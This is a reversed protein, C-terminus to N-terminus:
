NVTTHKVRHLDWFISFANTVRTGATYKISSERKQQATALTIEINVNANQNYIQCAAEHHYNWQTGRGRGGWNRVNNLQTTTM